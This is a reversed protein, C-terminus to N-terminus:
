PKRRWTAAWTATRAEASWPLVAVRGEVQALELGCEFTGAVARLFADNMLAFPLDEIAIRSEEPAHEVVSASGANRYVAPWARPVFGFIRHPTPDFLRLATEFLPKFFANLSLNFSARAWARTRAEGAEGFVAEALEVNLEIPLWDVRTADEIARLLRTAVRARVRAELDPGLSSLAALDEKLHSARVAPDTPSLSMQVHM